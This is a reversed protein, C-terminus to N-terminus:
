VRGIELAKLAMSTAANIAAVNAEYARTASIMDVMETVPNINPMMVYGEANADPHNPDYIRKAPSQDPVINLVRVGNGLFNVEQAPMNPVYFLPRQTRPAFVVRQRKYPGGEPTRTTNANALNNSIVDMHLREASLGSASVRLSSFFGM